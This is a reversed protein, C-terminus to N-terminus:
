PCRRRPALRRLRSARMLSMMALLMLGGIFVGGSAHSATCGAGTDGSTDAGGEDAPLDCEVRDVVRGTVTEIWMAVQDARVFVGGEGCPEGWTALGRSVVGILAPGHSTAIYVPGGSDGFCADAGAGGATFEGGPAIDRNCTEDTMCTGDVVGLTASNLRTNRDTATPTTLGFGVVQLQTGRVLRDRKGNQCNMAIPRQKVQVPNELMVVGVDYRYEWNPYAKSWKVARRQGGSEALDVSGIIVEVPHGGICHAATLVLDPGLLTGSCLGGDETLVAVVDPWDGPRVANGGVVPATLGGAHAAISTSFSVALVLCLANRM